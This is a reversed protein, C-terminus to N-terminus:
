GTCYIVKRVKDDDWRNPNVDEIVRKFRLGDAFEEISSKASSFKLLKKPAVVVLPKRFNRRM